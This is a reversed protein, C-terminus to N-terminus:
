LVRWKTSWRVHAYQLRLSVKSLSVQYVEGALGALIHACRQLPPCEICHMTHSFPRHQARLNGVKDIRARLCVVQRQPNGVARCWTRCMDGDHRACIMAVCLGDNVEGGVLIISGTAFPLLGVDM